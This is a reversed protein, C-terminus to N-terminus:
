KLADCLFSISDRCKQNLINNVNNYDIDKFIELNSDFTLQNLLRFQSVINVLRNNRKEDHHNYLFFYKNFIISFVLVHFSNTFVYDAYLIYSLFDQIGANPIIKHRIKLLRKFPFGYTIEVVKLNKIKALQYAEKIIKDNKGICYVIIYNKLKRKASFQKWFNDDLLFVPDLVTQPHLNYRELVPLMTPERISIMDVNALYKRLTSPNIDDLHGGDSIAYTIVKGTFGRIIGFYCPDLGKTITPNWIQDSGCVLYDLTHIEDMSIFKINKKRFSGFIIKRQLSLPLQIISSIFTFIDKFNFINYIHTITKPRYDVIFVENPTYLETLKKQLAFAQLLAGYNNACHVTIIGIRM